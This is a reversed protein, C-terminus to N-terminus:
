IQNHMIVVTAFDCFQPFFSFLFFVSTSLLAKQPPPPLILKRRKKAQVIHNPIKLVYLPNKHFFARIRWIELVPKLPLWFIFSPGLHCSLGQCCCPMLVMHVSFPRTPSTPINLVVSSVELSSSSATERVCVCTHHSYHADLPSFLSWTCLTGPM